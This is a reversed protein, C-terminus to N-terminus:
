RWFVGAEKEVFDLASGLVHGNVPGSHAHVISTELIWDKALIFADIWRSLHKAGSRSWSLGSVNLINM